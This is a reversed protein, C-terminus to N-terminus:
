LTFEEVTELREFKVLRITAGKVTRFWPEPRQREPHHDKEFEYYDLLDKKAKEFDLMGKWETDALPVNGPRPFLLGETGDPWTVIVLYATM